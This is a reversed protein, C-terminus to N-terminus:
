VKEHSFLSSLDPNEWYISTSPFAVSIGEQELIEIIKYNIDQRVELFHAWKTTTTFFYLFIDLSSDNFREFKVMITEPHVEAHDRLMAEIKLVCTKLKELPTSYTVGLRFSIQRKEMKSWNTIAENALTSNPVTVLSHAFTRIKTSRFTIDEVTGEVSPTAIWDGITFPKEIIIVVGGFINAIADKAALAFALGGLGLGAVFGNVDYNWEQAIIVFAMAAIIFRLIKSLFPILIEDLDLKEKLKDSIVRSSASLNYFGWAILFIISSRYLSLVFDDQSPGLPLFKLALFLGLFVFFYQLPKETSSTINELWHSDAKLCIRRFLRFLYATFLRRLFLFFLFIFVAPTLQLWLGGSAVSAFLDTLNLDQILKHWM